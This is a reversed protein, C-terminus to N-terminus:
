KDSYCAPDLHTATQFKGILSILSFFAKQAYQYITITSPQFGLNDMYMYKDYLIILNLLWQRKYPKFGCHIIM